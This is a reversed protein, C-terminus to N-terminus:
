SSRQKSVDGVLADVLGTIDHRAAEADIEIGAKRATASTIPGISVTRLRKPLQDPSGIAALLNEVTSSSTLTLYDTNSLRDLQANSIPEPVTKYLAVVNVDAGEEALRKPLLDRAVEARAILVRKGSLGIGALEDALSEAVAKKPVIDATIGQHSLAEATGPGIAAITAGSLSRADIGGVRLAQFLLEAGNPSTLCIVDYEGIRNVTDIVENSGTLPEIRITPLRLVDAGLDLLQKALGSIQAKARTVAVKVGFLPQNEFWGLQSRMETVPGIVTLAPPKIGSSIATAAIERLPATVTKQAPRTGLEIVAAPTEPDKGAEILREAIVGLNRVGMYFVLTGPVDALKDWDISAAAKEEDEHGTVFTVASAIGRHTVPIGAYAPAAVGATIGPVIEFSIGADCLALAEEGGRGFVFPDGGKLRVVSRGAQAHSVLMGNIQEQSYAHSDPRKGVFEMIADERATELAAEPALRDFLIVDATAILEAARLTLLRPDGPGAGVLYVTGAEASM